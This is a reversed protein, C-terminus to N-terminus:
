RSSTRAAQRLARVGLEVAQEAALLLGALGSDQTTGLPTADHSSSLADSSM